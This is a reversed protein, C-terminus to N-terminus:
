EQPVAIDLRLLSGAQAQFKREVLVREARRVQLTHEGPDLPIDYGQLAIPELVDDIWVADRESVVGTLNLRLQALAAQLQQEHQAAREREAEPLQQVDGVRRWDALAARPKGLALQAASLQLAVLPEPQLAYARSLAFAEALRDGKDRAAQAEALRSAREVERAPAASSSPKEGSTAAAGSGPEAARPAEGAPEASTAQPDAGARPLPGLRRKIQPTHPAQPAAQGEAKEQRKQLWWLGLPLRVEFLLANVPNPGSFVHQFELGFITYGLGAHALWRAGDVRSFGATAYFTGGRSLELEGGWGFGAIAGVEVALGLSVIWPATAYLAGLRGRALFYNPLRGEFGFGLGGVLQADPGFGLVGRTQVATPTAGVLSQAHLPTAAIPGCVCAVALAWACRRLRRMRLPAVAWREVMALM